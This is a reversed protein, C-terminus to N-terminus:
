LSAAGYRKLGPVGQGSSSRQGASRRTSTAGPRRRTARKPRLATRTRGGRRGRPGRRTGRQRGAPLGPTVPPVWLAGSAGDTSATGAPPRACNTQCGPASHRVKPRSWRMRLLAPSIRSRRCRGALRPRGGSRVPRPDAGVSVELGAVEEDLFAPQGGDDVEAPVPRASGASSGIAVQRRARPQVSETASGSSAWWRTDFGPIAALARRTIPSNSASRATYRARRSGPSLGQAALLPGRGRPSRRGPTACGISPSPPTLPAVAATM